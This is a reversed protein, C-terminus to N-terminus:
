LIDEHEDESLDVFKNKTRKYIIYSIPITLIYFLGFIFLTEFTFFLLSVFVMGTIFLIFITFKSSISIKKFSFTPLKSILLLSIAIVLYPTIPRLSLFNSFNSLELILPM